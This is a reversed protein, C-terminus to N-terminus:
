RTAMSASSAAPYKIIEAVESKSIKNQFHSGIMRTLTTERQPHNKPHARLREEILITQETSSKVTLQRLLPTEETSASRALLFGRGKLHAVLPDFGTDKSIIHFFANEKQGSHEGLYYAIASLRIVFPRKPQNPETSSIM